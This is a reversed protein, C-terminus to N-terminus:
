WSNSILNFSRSITNKDKVHFIVYLYANKQMTKAVINVKITSLFHFFMYKWGFITQCRSSIVDYIMVM